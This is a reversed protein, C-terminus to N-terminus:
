NLKWIEKYDRIVLKRCDAPLQTFKIRTGLHCKRGIAPPWHWGPKDRMTDCPQNQTSGHMGVGQPHFPSGSMAVYSYWRGAASVETAARGTYCVTYQDASDGGNDYCRIWRPIGRPM